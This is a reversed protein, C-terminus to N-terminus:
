AERDVLAIQRDHVRGLALQAALAGVLACTMDWQADFEDGQTGLYDQGAQGTFAAALAEVLEFGGSVGLCVLTTVGLLWWGARLPTLRVLLERVGIAAVAGQAVHGIRDYHNREFGFWDRMWEGLPVEAYTYHAGLAILLAAIALARYALPTLRFRPFTPVLVLLALGIPAVELVWTGYERAGVASAAVAALVVALLVRPEHRLTSPKTDPM